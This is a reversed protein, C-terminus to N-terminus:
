SFGSSFNMTLRTIAYCPENIMENRIENIVSHVFQTNIASEQILKLGKDADEVDLARVDRRM